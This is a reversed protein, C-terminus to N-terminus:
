EGSADMTFRNRWELLVTVELCAGRMMRGLTGSLANTNSSVFYRDFVAFKGSIGLWAQKRLQQIRGALGFVM